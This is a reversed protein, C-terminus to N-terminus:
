AQRLHRCAQSHHLKIRFFLHPKHNKHGRHFREPNDNQLTKDVPYSVLM